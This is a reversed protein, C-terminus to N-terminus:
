SLVLPLPSESLIIVRECWEQANVEGGSWACVIRPGPPAKGDGQAM